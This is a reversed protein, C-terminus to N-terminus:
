VVNWIKDEIDDVVTPDTDESYFNDFIDQAMQIAMDVMRDKGMCMRVECAANEIAEKLTM